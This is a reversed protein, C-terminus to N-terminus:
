HVVEPGEHSVRECCCGPAKAGRHLSLSPRLSTPRPHPRALTGPEPVGSVDAPEPLATSLTGILPFSAHPVLLWVFWSGHPVLIHVVIPFGEAVHHLWSPKVCVCGMVGLAQLILDEGPM